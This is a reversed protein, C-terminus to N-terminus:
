RLSKSRFVLSWLPYSFLTFVLFTGLPRAAAYNIPTWTVLGYYIAANLSLAVIEALVFGTLQKGIHGHAAQFVYHRNGFFQVSTGVILSPVNAAQPSIDAGRVLAILVMFDILSAAGGVIATRSIRMSGIRFLASRLQEM